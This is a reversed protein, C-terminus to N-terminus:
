NYNQFANEKGILFTKLNAFYHEFSLEHQFDSLAEKSLRDYDPIIQELCKKLSGSSGDTFFTWNFKGLIERFHSNDYLIVPLGLAAYEYIKNSATGLTQNMMDDKMHIGIGIHCSKGNEIVQRYDTPGVYILKDSVGNKQAIQQLQGLYERSVFGKLVLVLQKGGIKQNLLSILEELGHLPGISGQFLIRFVPDASKNKQQGVPYIYASPFNPLYFFEGRLLSMPFCVKRELAPLSFIDLKPFIWKESKWSCWTLSGKRIYREEAVDHNHYWLIHPKRTLLYSVRYALIAQYDYILISDPKYKRVSWLLKWSFRGYWFLKKLFGAAEVEGPTYNKKEGILQVNDPYDWDFGHLNRHLVYINEYLLSLNELASLTPPYYEPHGYIVVLLNRNSGKLQIRHYNQNLLLRMVTVM